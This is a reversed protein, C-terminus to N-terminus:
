RLQHQASHLLRGTVNARVLQLSAPFVAQAYQPSDARKMHNMGATFRDLLLDAFHRCLRFALAGFEGGLQGRENEEPCWTDYRASRRCWCKSSAVGSEPRTM